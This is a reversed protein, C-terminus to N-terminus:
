SLLKKLLEDVVKTNAKGKTQKMVFGKLANIAAEKGSKFEAVAKENLAIAEKCIAELEETNSTQQLGKEQILVLPDKGTNFMEILLDQGIQKSIIGDDIAKVLNALHSPTIKCETISLTKESKVGSLERLIDNALFNAIQKHNSCLKAASEFYDCM